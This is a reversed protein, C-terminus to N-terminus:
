RGTSSFALATIEGGPGGRFARPADEQASWCHIQFGSPVALLDGRVDVQMLNDNSFTHVDAHLEAPSHIYCFLAAMRTPRPLASSVVHM